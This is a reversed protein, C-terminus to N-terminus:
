AAASEDELIELVESCTYTVGPPLGEPYASAKSGADAWAELAKAQEDSVDLVLLSEDDARQLVEERDVSLEWLGVDKHLAKIAAAHGPAEGVWQLFGPGTDFIAIRTTTM